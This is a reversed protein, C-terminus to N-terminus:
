PSKQKKSQGKTLHYIGKMLYSTGKMLYNTGKVIILKKM